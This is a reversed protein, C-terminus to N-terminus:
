VQCALSQQYESVADPLFFRFVWEGSYDYMGSSYMLSLIDRCTQRKFIREGSLPCIGGQYSKYVM